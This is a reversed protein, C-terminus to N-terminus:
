NAFKIKLEPYVLEMIPIDSQALLYTHVLIYDGEVASPFAESSLDVWIIMESSEVIIMESSEVLNQDASKQPSNDTSRQPSALSTIALLTVSTITALAVSIEGVHLGRIRKM